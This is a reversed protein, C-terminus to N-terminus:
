GATAAAIRRSFLSRVRAVRVGQTEIPACPDSMGPMGGMPANDFRGYGDSDLYTECALGEALIVDHTELEVHFYTVNPVVLSAVNEGDVLARSPILVGQAFIAHDPSLLLDSFPLGRGMSGARIRVPRHEAGPAVLYRSGIWRIPRMVGDHTVVLDGVALHEVACLGADTEIRTGAAFCAVEGQITLTIPAFAESFGSSNGGGTTFTVTESFIGRQSTDLRITPATDAQGAGLGAFAGLGSFSFGSGDTIAMSGSLLDALGTAANLVGLTEALVGSGISARGFDLTYSTGGGSLIAPGAVGQLASVAHNDVAVNVAISQQALSSAAIGSTGSGDSVLTVVLAGSVLGSTATSIAYRLSSADSGGAVILGSSGTAVIGSGTVSVSARLGESFGDAVDTNAVTITGAVGDGVHVVVVTPGGGVMATAQRFVSGSETLTATGADLTQGGGADSTYALQLLGSKIGVSTTDIGVSITGDSAGAALMVIAGRAVVGGSGVNVSVDLAASGVLATNSIQLAVVAADGLHVAGFAHLTPSSLVPASAAVVTDTVVISQSALARSYGSDNRDVPALTLTDVFGGVNAFNPVLLIGQNSSGAKIPLFNATSDVTALQLSFGSDDSGALKGSLDDAPSASTNSLRFSITTPTQGQVFRGLALTGGSVKATGARAVLSLVPTAVAGPEAVSNVIATQATAAAVPTTGDTSSITVQLASLPLLGLVDTPLVVTLNATTLGALITVTGSPLVGGFASAALYTGDPATVAWSVLTDTGAPGSLYAQFSVLTAADTSESLSTQLATVGLVRVIAQDHTVAAATVNSSLQQVNQASSLLSIKGTLAFDLAAQQAIVINTIGANAVAQLAQASVSGPLQSLTTGNTPFNPITFSATGQGADYDFLSTANTVRWSDAYVGYLTSDAINGYVDVPAASGGALRFEHGSNDAPGLLGEVSGPATTSTDLQLTFNLYGNLGADSLSVTMQEGHATTIVYNGYSGSVQGGAFTLVTNSASLGADHGNVWVASARMADITVRDAGIQIAIERGVTALSSANFPTMREQVQFTNAPDHSRVLVFEGAGQFNYAVNDFTTLHVDGWGIAAIVPQVVHWVYTIDVPTLEVTQTPNVSYPVYEALASYTGAAFNGGYTYITASNSQGPGLLPASYALPVQLDDANGTALNGVVVNHQGTHGSILTGLDITRSPHTGAGPTDPNTVPDRVGEIIPLAYPVVEVTISLTQDKLTYGPVSGDTPISDGHLTVTGHQTQLGLQDILAADDIAQFTLSTVDYQGAYVQFTKEGVPDKVQAHTGPAFDGTIGTITSILNDASGDSAAANLTIIDLTRVSGGPKASAAHIYYNLTKPTELILTGLDFTDRYDPKAPQYFLVRIPVTQSPLDSIYRGSGSKYHFTVTGTQIDNAADVFDAVVNDATFSFSTTNTSGDAIVASATPNTFAFGTTGTITATLDELPVDSRNDYNGLSLHLVTTGSAQPHLFFVAPSTIQPKAKDPLDVLVQVLVTGLDTTALKSTDAGDSSLGITFTGAEANAQLAQPTVNASFVISSADEAGAAILGTTGHPSAVGAQGTFDGTSSLLTARLGETYNYVDVLADVPLSFQQTDGNAKEDVYFITKPFKARALAYVGVSLNATQSPLPTTVGGLATPATSTFGITVSGTALGANSTDLMVTIPTGSGVHAGGSVGIDATSSGPQLDAFHGTAGAKGTVGLLTGSLTGQDTNGSVANVISLVDQSNAGSLGSIHVNDTFRYALPATATENDGPSIVAKADKPDQAFTLKTGTGDADKAFTIGTQAIDGSVNFIVQQGSTGTLTIQETTPSTFAIAFGANGAVTKFGALHIVDGDLTGTVTITDSVAHDIELTSATGVDGFGISPGYFNVHAGDATGALELTGSQFLVLGQYQSPAQDFILRSYADAVLTGGLVQQQVVLTGGSAIIRSYTNDVAANLTGYGVITSPDIVGIGSNPFLSSIHPATFTGGNITIAGFLDLSQAATFNAGDRLILSGSRKFYDTPSIMGGLSTLNAQIDSVTGGVDSVLRGGGDYTLVGLLKQIPAALDLQITSGVGLTFSGGLLGGAGTTTSASTDGVELTAGPVAGFVGGTWDATQLHLTQGADSALVLGDIETRSGGNADTVRILGSGFLSADNAITFLGRTGSASGDARAGTLVSLSGPPVLAISLGTLTVDQSAILSGTTLVNAFPTGNVSSYADGTITGGSQVTITGNVVAVDALSLTGTVDLTSGGLDLTTKQRATPDGLSVTDLIHLVAGSSVVISGLVSVGDLTSDASVALAKAVFSGGGALTGGSLTITGGPLEVTGAASLTGLVVLGADGAGLIDIGSAPPVLSIMAGAAITLTTGADVSIRGDIELTGRLNADTTVELRGTAIDITAATGTIDAFPGGLLFVGGTALTVHGAIQLGGQDSLTGSVVVNGTVLDFSYPAIVATAGAAIEFGGTIINADLTSVGTGFDLHGGAIQVAALRLTGGALELTGANLKLAGFNGGGGTQNYGMFLTGTLVALPAAGPTTGGIVLDQVSQNGAITVTYRGPHQSNDLLAVDQGDTTYPGSPQPVGHTWNGITAWVGDGAAGTWATIVPLAFALGKETSAADLTLTGGNIVVTGNQLTTHYLSLAGDLELVGGGLDVIHQVTDSSAGIAAAGRAVLRTVNSTLTVNGDVTIGDLTGSDQVQVASAITGHAFGAGTVLGSSIAVLASPDGNDSIVGAIDLTSSIKLVAGSGITFLGAHGADDGAFHSVGGTVNLTSGNGTAFSGLVTVGDFQDSGGVVLRGAAQGQAAYALTANALTGGYIEFVGSQLTLTGTVNFGSSDVGAALDLRGTLLLSAAAGVTTDILIDGAHQGDAIIVTFGAALISNDISALTQASPTQAMPVGDSWNAADSWIGNGAAGTWNTSSPSPM